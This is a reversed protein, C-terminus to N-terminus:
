KWKVKIEKIGDWKFEKHPPIREAYDRDQVENWLFYEDMKLNRLKGREGYRVTKLPNDEEVVYIYSLPAPPYYKIEKTPINPFLGSNSNGYTNFIIKSKFKEKYELFKDKQIEMGILIAKVREFGPANEFLPLLPLITGFVDIGRKLADFSYELLPGFRAMLFPNSKAKEMDLPTSPSLYKKLGRCEVPIFHFIGKRERIVRRMIAPYLGYTGPLFWELGYDLRYADLIYNFYKSCYDLAEESWVHPKKRGSTGSSPFPSIKEKKKRWTIKPVFYSPPKEILENADCLSVEQNLFDELTEFDKKPNINFDKIKNIWYPAGKEQNFHLDRVKEWYDQLMEKYEKQSCLWAPKQIEIM